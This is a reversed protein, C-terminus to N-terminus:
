PLHEKRICHHYLRKWHLLVHQAQEYVHQPTRHKHSQKRVLQLKILTANLKESSIIETNKVLEFNNEIQWKLHKKKQHRHRLIIWHNTLTCTNSNSYKVFQTLLMRIERKLMQEHPNATNNQCNKIICVHNHAIIVSTATLTIVQTFLSSRM